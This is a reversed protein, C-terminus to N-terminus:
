LIPLAFYAFTIALAIVLFFRFLEEHPDPPEFFSM